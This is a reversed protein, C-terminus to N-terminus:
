KRAKIKNKLEEIVESKSKSNVKKSEEKVVTVNSDTEVGTAISNEDLIVDEPITFSEGPINPKEDPIEKVAVNLRRHDPSSEEDEYEIIVEAMFKGGMYPSIVECKKNVMEQFIDDFIRPNGETYVETDFSYERGLYKGRTVSETGGLIKQRILERRPFSNTSTINEAYFPYNDIEVTESVGNVIDKYMKAM